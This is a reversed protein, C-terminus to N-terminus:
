LFAFFGVGCLKRRFDADFRIGVARKGMHFIIEEGRGPLAFIVPTVDGHTRGVRDQFDRNERRQLFQFLLDIFLTEAKQQYVKGCDHQEANKGPEKGASQESRDDFILLLLSEEDGGSGM